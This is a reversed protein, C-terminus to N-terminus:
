GGLGSNQWKSGLSAGAGFFPFSQTTGILRRDTIAVETERDLHFIRQNAVISRRVNLGVGVYTGSLIWSQDITTGADIECNNEVASGGSVTCCSGIRTGAGIFCPGGIVCSDDVEAGDGFWVGSAVETGEPRLACRGCLADEILQSFDSPKRLRNTYGNYYFREPERHVSRGRDRLWQTNVVALDLVGPTYVQTLAARREVHFRILENFDLDSYFSARLLVLADVGTHTWHAVAKDWASISDNAAHRSWLANFAPGDPVVIPGQVGAARLQALTRDRLSQGLIGVSSVPLKTIGTSVFGPNLESSDDRDEWGSLILMAGIQM